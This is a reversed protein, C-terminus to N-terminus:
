YKKCLKSDACWCNRGWHECVATLIQVSAIPNPDQSVPLRAERPLDLLQRWASDRREEPALATAVVVAAEVAVAMMVVSDPCLYEAGAGGETTGRDIDPPCVYTPLWTFQKNGVVGTPKFQLTHVRSGPLDERSM